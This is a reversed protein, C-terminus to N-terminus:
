RLLEPNRIKFREDLKWLGREHYGHAEWFGDLYESVVRLSALWKAHKWGFLTPALLRVPGGHDQSLKEGELGLAIYSKVAELCPLVTTYGTSSTAAVWWGGPCGGVLDLLESLPVVLWKRGTYSWGTVCHLDLTKWEAREELDKLSITIGAEPGEVSLYGPHSPESREAKYKILKPAEKQMVSVDEVPGWPAPIVGRLPSGWEVEEEADLKGALGYLVIIGALPKGLWEAVVIRAQGAVDGGVQVTYIRYRGRGLGEWRIKGAPRLDVGLGRSVYSVLRSLITAAEDVGQPPSGSVTCEVSAEVGMLAALPTRKAVCGLFEMAM